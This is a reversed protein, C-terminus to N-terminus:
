QVRGMITIPNAPAAWVVSFYVKAHHGLMLHGKTARKVVDWFAILYSTPVCWSDEEKGLLVIGLVASFWSLIRKSARHGNFIIWHLQNM